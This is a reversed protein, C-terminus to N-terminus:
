SLEVTVLQEPFTGWRLRRDEDFPLERSRYVRDGISRLPDLLMKAAQPQDSENGASAMTQSLDRFFAFTRPTSRFAFFGLNAPERRLKDAGGIPRMFSIDTHARLGSRLESYPRLPLVDADTFVFLTSESGPKEPLTQVVGALWKWRQRM